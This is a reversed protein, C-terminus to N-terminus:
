QKFEALLKQAEEVAEKVGRKRAREMEKRCTKEIFYESVNKKIRKGYYVLYNESQDEMKEALFIECFKDMAKVIWKQRIQSYEGEIGSWPIYYEYAVKLLDDINVEFNETKEHLAPFICTWLQAMTYEVPPEKRTFRCEEYQNVLTDVDLRINESLSKNLSVCGTEGFRHRILIVDREGFKLSEIVGWESICFRKKFNIEGKSIWDSIRNVVRDSDMVHCLLLVDHNQVEKTATEWGEVDESYKELQRFEKLLFHNPHPVSTKIECLIGLKNDNYQLVADPFVEAHSKSIVFKPEASIFCCDPGGTSLFDKLGITLLVTQYYREVEIRKRNKCRLLIEKSTELFSGEDLM